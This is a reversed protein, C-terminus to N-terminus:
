TIYTHSPVQTQRDHAISCRNSKHEDIKMLRVAIYQLSEFGAGDRDRRKSKIHWYVEEVQQGAEVHVASQDGKFFLFTCKRRPYTIAWVQTTFNIDPGLILCLDTSMIWETVATSMKVPSSSELPKSGDVHINTLCRKKVTLHPLSCPHRPLTLPRPKPCRHNVPCMDRKGQYGFGRKSPPNKRGTHKKTFAQDISDYCYFTVSWLELRKLSHTSSLHICM